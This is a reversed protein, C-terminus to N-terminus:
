RDVFASVNADDDADGVLAAVMDEVLESSTGMNENSVWVDFILGESTANLHLEGPEDEGDVLVDSYIIRVGEQAPTFTEGGDLSVMMSSKESEKSDNDGEPRNAQPSSWVQENNKYRDHECKAEIFVKNCNAHRKDKAYEIAANLTKFRSINSHLADGVGWSIVEFWGPSEGDVYGDSDCFLPRNEGVRQFMNVVLEALKEKSITALAREATDSEISGTYMAAIINRIQMSESLEGTM